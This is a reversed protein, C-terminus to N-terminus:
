RASDIRAPDIDEFQMEFVQNPAKQVNLAPKVM